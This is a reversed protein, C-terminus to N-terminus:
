YDFWETPDFVNLFMWDSDKAFRYADLRWGTGGDEEYKVPGALYIYKKNM